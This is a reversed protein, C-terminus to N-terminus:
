FPNKLKKKTSDKETCAHIRVFTINASLLRIVIFFADFRNFRAIRRLIATHGSDFPSTHCNM